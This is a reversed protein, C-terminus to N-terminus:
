LVCPVVIAIPIVDVVVVVVNGLFTCLLVLALLVTPEVLYSVASHLLRSLRGSLGLGLEFGFGLFLLCLLLILGLVLGLDLSIDFRLGLDRANDTSLVSINM